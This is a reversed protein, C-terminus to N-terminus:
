GQSPLSAPTSAGGESLLTEKERNLHFWHATLCGGVVEGVASGLELARRRHTVDQRDKHFLHRLQSPQTPHPPPKITM